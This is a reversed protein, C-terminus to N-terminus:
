QEVLGLIMVNTDGAQFTNAMGPKKNVGANFPDEWGMEKAAYIAADWETFLQYKMSYICFPDTSSNVVLVKVTREAM